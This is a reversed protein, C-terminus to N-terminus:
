NNEPEWDNCFYSKCVEPRENYITCKNGNEDLFLCLSNNTKREHFIKNFEEPLMGMAKSINSVVDLGLADFKCCESPICGSCKMSKIAPPAIECIERRHLYEM